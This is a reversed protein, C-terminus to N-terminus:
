LQMDYEEISLAERYRTKSLQMQKKRNRSNAAQFYPEEPGSNRKKKKLELTEIHEGQHVAVRESMVFEKM